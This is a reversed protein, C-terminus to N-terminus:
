SKRKHFPRVLMGLYLNSRRYYSNISLGPLNMDAAVYVGVAGRTLSIQPMTGVTFIPLTNSYWTSFNDTSYNIRTWLTRINIVAGVDLVLPLRQKTNFIMRYFLPIDLGLNRNQMTYSGTFNEINNQQTTDLVIYQGDYDGSQWTSGSFIKLGNVFYRNNKKLPREAERLSLSISAGRGQTFNNYPQTNLFEIFQTGAPLFTLEAPRFSSSRDLSSLYGVELQPFWRITKRASDEATAPLLRNDNYQLTGPSSSLINKQQRYVIFEVKEQENEFTLTTRNGTPPLPLTVTQPGFLIRLSDPYSSQQSWSLSYLLMLSLLICFRLHNKM